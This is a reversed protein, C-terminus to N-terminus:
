SNQTGIESSGNPLFKRHDAEIEQLLSNMQSLSSLGSELSVSRRLKGELEEEDHRYLPEDRSLEREDREDVFVNEPVDSLSVKTQELIEAVSRVRPPAAM